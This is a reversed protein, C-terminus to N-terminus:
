INSNRNVQKQEDNLFYVDDDIPYLSFTRKSVKDILNSLKVYKQLGFYKHLAM